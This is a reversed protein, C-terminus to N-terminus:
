KEGCISRLSLRIWNGEVGGIFHGNNEPDKCHRSYVKYGADRLQQEGKQVWKWDMIHDEIEHFFHLPVSSQPGDPEVPTCGLLHGVIGVFGGLPKPFTLFGDLATCCGQSKGGVIVRDFRGGLKGAEEEIISHIARRMSYLSHWDISDEKRGDHNSTYDYWSLFKALAWRPKSDARKVKGWWTDFCSLERSPATPIIVKVAATGDFFYHPRDAYDGLASSGLGHLYILTWRPLNTNLPTFIVAPLLDATKQVVKIRRRGDAVALDRRSKATVNIVESALPGQLDGRRIKEVRSTLVQKEV